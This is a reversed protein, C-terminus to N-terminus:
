GAKGGTHLCGFCPEDASTDAREGSGGKQDAVPGNGAFVDRDEFGQGEHASAEIAGSIRGFAIREAASSHQRGVVVLAGPIEKVQIGFNSPTAM